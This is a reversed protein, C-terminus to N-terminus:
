VRSAGSAYDGDVGSGQPAAAPELMPELNCVEFLRRARPSPARVTLSRSLSLAYNRTRVIVGITSADMFDVDSLDVVLDAADDDVIARRIAAEVDAATSVDHEGRLWVITFGGDRNTGAGRPSVTIPTFQTDAMPLELSALRTVLTQLVADRAPM